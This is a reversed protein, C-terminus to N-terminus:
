YPNIRFCLIHTFLYFVIKFYRVIYFMRINRLRAISFELINKFGLKINRPDFTFPLPSSYIQPAITNRMTPVALWTFILDHNM